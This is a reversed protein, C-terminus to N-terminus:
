RLTSPHITSHHVVIADPITARGTELKLLIVTLAPLPSAHDYIQLAFSQCCVEISHLVGSM